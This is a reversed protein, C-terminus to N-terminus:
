DVDTAGERGDFYQSKIVDYYFVLDDETGNDFRKQAKAPPSTWAGEPTQIAAVDYDPMWGWEGGLNRRMVEGLYAGALSAIPRNAKKVKGRSWRQRSALQERILREVVEVSGDSYDLRYGFDSAFEVFHEAFQAM